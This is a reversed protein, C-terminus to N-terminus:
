PQKLMYNAVKVIENTAQIYTNSHRGTKVEQLTVNEGYNWGKQIQHLPTKIDDTGQFISVPTNVLLSLPESLAYDKVLLAKIPLAQLPNLYWKSTLYNNIAVSLSPSASELIVGAVKTKTVSYAAITAGLSRGYVITKELPCSLSITNMTVTVLKILSEINDVQGKAGDQGPYSISFVKFNNKQFDNFLSQEYKIVGGHQGPFFVVCHQQYEGYQRVLLANKSSDFVEFKKLEQTNSTLSVSPFLYSSLQAYILYSGLSFYSFIILCCVVFIRYM